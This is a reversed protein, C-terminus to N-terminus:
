ANRKANPCDEGTIAKDRERKSGRDRDGGNGNGSGDGGDAGDGNGDGGAGAGAGGGGLAAERPLQFSVCLMLKKPAVDRVQRVTTASRDLSAGLTAEVREIVDEKPNSKASFCYCHIHPLPVGRRDWTDFRGRFVDLFEIADAPLNMFVHNFTKGEGILQAVFDRADVNYCRVRGAVKNSRVNSVLYHYSRPNLDNAYVTCGRKGAPVAFPGIGCFMDCVVDSPKLADVMRGHEQQLRSNWYVEAFNFRFTAKSEKVEVDMDDDGALLEMEFTRFETAITGVKNVVTRIGRNKDLIVEGIIHKFPEHADRLNLHAVHGITEFSAPAEVDSPLLRKLVEDASFYSYDLKLEFTTQSVGADSVFRAHAPPLETASALKDSLLLLKTADAHTGDAPVTAAVEAPDSVINRQRPYNLLSSRLTKM